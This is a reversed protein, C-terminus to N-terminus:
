IIIKPDIIVDKLKSDYELIPIQSIADDVVEHISDLAEAMNYGSMSTSDNYIQSAKQNEIIFHGTGSIVNGQVFSNSLILDGNYTWNGLLISCIADITAREPIWFDNNLIGLQSGLRTQLYAGGGNLLRWTINRKLNCGLFVETKGRWCIPTNGTADTQIIFSKQDLQGHIKVSSHFQAASVNAFSINGYFECTGTFIPNAINNFLIDANEMFLCSDFVLNTGLKGEHIGSELHIPDAFGIESFYITELCDNHIISRISKGCCADIITQNKGSGKFYINFLNSNELVVMEPYKGPGINIIYSWTQNDGQKVIHEVADSIRDYPQEFSGNGTEPAHASVYIEKFLPESTITNNLKWGIGDFRYHNDEDSIYVVWGPFPVDYQWKFGDFWTINNEKGNWSSSPDVDAPILYRDGKSSNGPPSFVNRSKVPEQWPFSELVPIRVKQQDRM